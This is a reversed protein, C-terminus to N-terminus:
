NLPMERYGALFVGSTALGERFRPSMLVERELTRPALYTSWRALDSDVYGPHAVFENFGSPLNRLMILFQGVNIRDARRAMDTIEVRRDPMILGRDLARKRLWSNWMFKAARDPRVSVHWFHKLTPCSSEMGVLYRHTRIRRVGTKQAVDLFVDYLGPLRHLGMHFDIHSLASGALQRTREIQALMEARLEALRLRGRLFQRTFNRYLFEGHDNVLTAVQHSPLIPRGVITNIHCGVSVDPHRRVFAPLGAAHDFNVNVSISRVTGFEVCEEIAKTIGATFGYGDANIILYRM